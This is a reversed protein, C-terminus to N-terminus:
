LSKSDSIAFVLVGSVSTTRSTLPEGCVSVFKWAARAVRLGLVSLGVVDQLQKAVQSEEKAATIGYQNVRLTTSEVRCMIGNM